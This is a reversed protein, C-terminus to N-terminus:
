LDVYFMKFICVILLILQNANAHISKFATFQIKNSLKVKFIGMDVGSDIIQPTYNGLYLNHLSLMSCSMM